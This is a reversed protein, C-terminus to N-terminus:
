LPFRYIRLWAGDHRHARVSVDGIGFDDDVFVGATTVEEVFFAFDDFRYLPEELLRCALTQPTQNTSKDNAAVAPGLVNV